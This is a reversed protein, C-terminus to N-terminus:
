QTLMVRSSELLRARVLVVTVILLDWSAGPQDCVSMEWECLECVMYDVLDMRRM